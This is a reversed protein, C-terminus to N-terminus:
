NLVELVQPPTPLGAKAFIREIVERYIEVRHISELKVEPKSDKKFALARSEKAMDLITFIVERGEESQVADKARSFAEAAAGPVEPAAEHKSHRATYRQAVTSM